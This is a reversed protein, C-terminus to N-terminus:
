PTPAWGDREPWRQCMVLLGRTLCVCCSPVCALLLLASHLLGADTRSLSSAGPRDQPRLGRERPPVVFLGSGTGAVACCAIFHKLLPFWIWPKQAHRTDRTTGRRCRIATSHHKWSASSIARSFRTPSARRTVPRSLQLM